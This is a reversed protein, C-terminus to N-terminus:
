AKLATDACLGPEPFPVVSTLTAQPPSLVWSDLPPPGLDRGAPSPPSPPLLRPRSVAVGVVATRSRPGARWSACGWRRWMRRSGRLGRVGAAKWAAKLEGAWTLRNQRRASNPLAIAWRQPCRGGLQLTHAPERGWELPMLGDEAGGAGPWGGRGRSLSRPSVAARERATWARGFLRQPAPSQM